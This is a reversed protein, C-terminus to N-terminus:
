WITLIGTRSGHTNTTQGQEKSTLVPGVGKLITSMGKQVRVRITSGVRVKVQIGRNGESTLPFMSTKHMEAQGTPSTAQAEIGTTRGRTTGIQGLPDRKRNSHM